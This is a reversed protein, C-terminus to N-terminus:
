LHQQNAADPAGIGLLSRQQGLRTEVQRLNSWSVRGDANDLTDWCICLLSEGPSNTTIDQAPPHPLPRSSATDIGNVLSVPM